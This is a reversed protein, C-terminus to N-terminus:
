NALFTADSSELRIAEPLKKADLKLIVTNTGAPAEVVLDSNFQVPKGDVWTPSGDPGMLKLHVTGAKAVQFQAAAFVAQPDRTGQEALAARLENKLLRGDVLSRASRWNADSLRTNLIREDGFQALDLTQALLKWSRAVNPKSADFPGPKGLESLFRYLDLREGPNLVDVLGSPMLSNGTTRNEIKNKSITTEKDTADRLVLQENDERVLVGSFELGDKTEVIVSHYGEKIKRNPYLVSEILYDVPASSGISTLDPGVKGGVGGIAHCTACALEKRRFITEGRVPDGETIVTSALQKIEAESLMQEESELAAGRTLAWVLETENRGGERAARLGAKAMAAPLGTKPLARALNTSAGKISLLSRWFETAESEKTIGLLIEVAPRSAKDLDLAALSLVAQRRVPEQSEKGALRQLGAIADKDGIERLAEFAGQRLSSIGAQDGAAELLEPVFRELKWSGILRMARERLKKDGDGLLRGIGDLAGSPNADRDHAAVNLADLARAAAAEDFGGRLVQEFLRRLLAPDGATGILEIWPGSGDRALERGQLVQALVVSALAPELAKLAFELQNERGEPKWAGSKVAALWPQALDNISLWAGYELFSDMPQKLASLVLEASPATRITALARMAELRVRPHEDAIRQALLNLPSKLRAHWDSIVRTAAARVRGDKADLVKLLLSPEVVDISQYM